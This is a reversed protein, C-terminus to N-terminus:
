MRVYVKIECLSINLNQIPFFLFVINIYSQPQFSYPCVLSVIEEKFNDLYFKETNDVYNEIKECSYWPIDVFKPNSLLNRNSNLISVPKVGVARLGGRLNHGYVMVIIEKTRPVNKLQYTMSCAPIQVDPSTVCSTLDTDNLINSTACRRNGDELREQNIVSFM